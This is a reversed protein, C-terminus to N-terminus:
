VLLSRGTCLRVKPGGQGFVFVHLEFDVKLLMDFVATGLAKKIQWGGHLNWAPLPVEPARPWMEAGVINMGGRFMQYIIAFLLHLQKATVNKCVVLQKQQAM